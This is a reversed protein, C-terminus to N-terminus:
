ANKQIKLIKKTIIEKHPQLIHKVAYLFYVLFRNNEFNFLITANIAHITLANNRKAKCAKQNKLINKYFTKIKM